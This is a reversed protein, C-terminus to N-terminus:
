VFWNQFNAYSVKQGLGVCTKGGTPFNAMGVRLIEWVIEVRGCFLRAPLWRRFGIGIFQFDVHRLVVGRSSSRVGRALTLALDAAAVQEDLMTITATGAAPPLSVDSACLLLSNLDELTM